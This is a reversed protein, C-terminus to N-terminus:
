SNYNDFWYNNVKELGLKTDEGHGPYIIIDDDYKKIKEISKLMENFNGTPLDTRGVSNQFIFDGTFMIKENKFYFTISDDTHGKTYLVDFVFNDIKYNKEQVNNYQYIPVNYDKEVDSLAGVHDFHGHTILIALVEKKGIKEKILQYNDGPDIVLCKNNKILIYCNELYSGVIVKEVIM